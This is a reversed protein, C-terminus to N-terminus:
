LYYSKVKDKLEKEADRVKFYDAKVTDRLEKEADKVKSSLSYSEVKERLLKESATEFRLADKLKKLSFGALKNIVYEKNM